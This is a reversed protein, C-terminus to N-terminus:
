CSPEVAFYDDCIDQEVRWDDSSKPANEVAERIKDGVSQGIVGQKNHNYIDEIVNKYANVKQIQDPYREGWEDIVDEFFTLTEIWYDVRKNAM